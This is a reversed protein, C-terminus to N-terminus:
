ATQTDTHRHTQTDTRRRTQTDTHTQRHKRRNETTEAATALSRHHAAGVHSFKCSFTGWFKQFVLITFHKIRSHFRHTEIPKPTGSATKWAGTRGGTTFQGMQNYITGDPQLYDRVCTPTPPPEPGPALSQTEYAELHFIPIPM